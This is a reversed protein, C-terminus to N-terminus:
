RTGAQEDGAQEDGAQEDGAQEVRGDFPRTQEVYGAFDIVVHEGDGVGSRDRRIREAEALAAASAPRRTKRRCPDRDSFSALVVKTLATVHEDLRVVAGAGDAQRVHHALLAGHRDTVDFTTTGLKHRVAVVEGSHGPVLSYRNGRFAIQAQNSVTREVEIM